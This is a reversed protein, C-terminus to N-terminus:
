RLYRSPFFFRAVWEWMLILSVNRVTTPWTCWLFIICSQHFAQLILKLCVVCPNVSLVELMTTCFASWCELCAWEKIKLCDWKFVSNNLRNQLFFFTCWLHSLPTPMWFLVCFMTYMIILSHSFTYSLAWWECGLMSQAFTQWSHLKM